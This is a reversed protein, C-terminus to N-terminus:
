VFVVRECDRSLQDLALEGSGHVPVVGFLVGDHRRSIVEVDQAEGEVMGTATARIRIIDIVLRNQPRVGRRVLLRVKLLEIAILLNTGVFDPVRDNRINIAPIGDIPAVIRHKMLHLTRPQPLTWLSIRQLRGTRCCRSDHLVHITDGMVPDNDVIWVRREVRFAVRQLGSVVAALFSLGDCGM